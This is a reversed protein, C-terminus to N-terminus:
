GLIFKAKEDRLMTYPTVVKVNLGACVNPIKVRSEGDSKIEHTVVIFDHAHAFAVLYCDAIELFHAVAQPRYKQSTVWEGVFPMSRIMEQDHPLFFAEGLNSAWASLEDEHRALEDGIAVISCVQAPKKLTVLWEWFAPCFDMGYQLNKAQILVNADLLYKNM